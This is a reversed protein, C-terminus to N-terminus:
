SPPGGEAGQRRLPLSRCRGGRPLPPSPIRLPTEARPFPSSPIRLPTEARPFPSSPIRLPTEARLPFPIRLPM